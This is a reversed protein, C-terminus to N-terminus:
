GFLLERLIFCLLLGLVCGTFFYVPEFKIKKQDTQELENNQEDESM